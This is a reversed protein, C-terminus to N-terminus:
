LRAVEAFTVRLPMAQRVPRWLEPDGCWECYEDDCYGDMGDRDNRDVIAVEVEPADVRAAAEDRKNRAPMYTCM